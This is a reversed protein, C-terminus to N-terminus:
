RLRNRILTGFYGSDSGCRTQAVEDVRISLLDPGAKDSLKAVECRSGELVEALLKECMQPVSIDLYRTLALIAADVAISVETLPSDANTRGKLGLPPRIVGDTPRFDVSKTASNLSLVIVPNKEGRASKSRPFPFGGAKVVSEHGLVSDVKHTM